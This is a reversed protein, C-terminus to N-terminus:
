NEVPGVPLALFLRVGPTGPCFSEQIQPVGNSVMKEGTKGLM